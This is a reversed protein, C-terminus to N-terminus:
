MKYLLFNEPTVVMFNANFPSLNERMSPFYRM